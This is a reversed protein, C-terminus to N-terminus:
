EQSIKSKVSSLIKKLKACVLWILKLILFTVAAIGIIGGIAGYPNNSFNLLLGFSQILILITWTIYFGKGM